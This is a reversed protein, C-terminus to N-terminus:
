IFIEVPDKKVSSLRLVGLFPLPGFTALAIKFLLLSFNDKM